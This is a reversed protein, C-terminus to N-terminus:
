IVSIINHLSPILKKSPLSSPHRIIDPFIMFIIDAIARVARNRQHFYSRQLCYLLCWRHCGHQFNSVQVIIATRFSLTVILLLPLLLLLLRWLWSCCHVVRGNRRWNSTKKVLNLRNPLLTSVNVTQAVQKSWNRTTGPEYRMRRLSHIM